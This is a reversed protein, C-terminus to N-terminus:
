EEPAIQVRLGDLASTFEVQCSLRSHETAHNLYEVLGREDPTAGPLRGAWEPAVYIHCTACSCMGGCLATVGNDLERLVEMLTRGPEIELEHEIGAKDIVRIRPM